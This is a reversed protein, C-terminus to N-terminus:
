DAQLLDFGAVLHQDVDLVVAALFVVDAAQLMLLGVDINVIKDAAYTLDFDFEVVEGRCMDFVLDVVLFEVVAAVVVKHFVVAHVFVAVRPVVLIEVIVAMLFEVVAVFVEVRVAVFAQNKDAALLIEVLLVVVFVNVVADRIEAIDARLMEVAVVILIEVVLLFEAVVALTGVVLYEVGAVL